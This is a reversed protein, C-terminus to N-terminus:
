SYEGGGVLNPGLVSRSGFTSYQESQMEQVANNWNGSEVHFHLHDLYDCLM